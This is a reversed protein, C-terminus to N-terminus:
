SPLLDSRSAEAPATWGLTSSVRTVDVETPGPRAPSYSVVTAPVRLGDRRAWTELENLSRQSDVTVAALEDLTRAQGLVDPDGLMGWQDWLLMETKTLAALDQVLHHRLSLWGRTYPEDIEPSVVFREPDITGARAAQWARPGTLFIAPPVDLPDFGGSGAQSALEESIEPEVLRWRGKGEDWIEAIVHDIFWGPQFYTAYGVRARAAIGKHRAMSVFLLTFDRCCGLVRETEPRPRSLEPVGRGLLRAFMVDAYRADVDGAREDDLGSIAGETLAFYHAVLEQSVQRLQAPDPRLRDIAPGAAGPETVASQSLWGDAVTRTVM